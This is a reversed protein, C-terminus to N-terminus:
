GPRCRRRPPTRPSATATASAPGTSPSYGSATAPSGVASRRCRDMANASAGHLLVVTGRSPAGEGPGAEIVALHGSEVAVRRGAPPYRAEVVLTIIWTALLGVAVLALVFGATLGAILTLM